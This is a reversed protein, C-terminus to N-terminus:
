VLVWSTAATTRLEWSMSFTTGLGTLTPHRVTDPSGFWNPFKWLTLREFCHLFALYGGKVRFRELGSLTTGCRQGLHAALGETWRGAM